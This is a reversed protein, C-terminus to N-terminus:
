RLALSALTLAGKPDFFIYNLIQRLQSYTMWEMGIIFPFTQSVYNVMEAFTESNDYRRIDM